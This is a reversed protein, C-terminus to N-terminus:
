TPDHDKLKAITQNPNGFHIKILDGDCILDLSSYIQGDKFLIHFM